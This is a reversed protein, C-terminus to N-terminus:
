HYSEYRHSSREIKSLFSYYQDCTKIVIHLSVVEMQQIGLFVGGGVGRM